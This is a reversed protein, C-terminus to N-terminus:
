DSIEFLLSLNKCSSRASLPTAQRLITKIHQVVEDPNPESVELLRRLADEQQKSSKFVYGLLFPHTNAMLSRTNKNLLPFEITRVITRIQNAQKINFYNNWRDM